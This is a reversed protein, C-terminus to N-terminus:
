VKSGVVGLMQKTRHDSFRLVVINSANACSTCCQQHWAHVNCMTELTKGCHMAPELMTTLYQMQKWVVVSMTLGVINPTTTDM